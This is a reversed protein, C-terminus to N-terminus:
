ATSAEGDQILPSPREGGQVARVNLQAYKHSLQSAFLPTAGRVIRAQRELPCYVRGGRSS